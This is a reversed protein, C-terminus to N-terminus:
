ASVPIYLGQDRRCLFSLLEIFPPPLSPRCQHHQSSLYPKAPVPSLARPSPSFIFHCTPWGGGRNKYVNKPYGFPKERWMKAIPIWNPGTPVGTDLNKKFNNIIFNILVLIIIIYNVIYIFILIPFFLM